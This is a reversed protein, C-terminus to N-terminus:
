KRDHSGPQIRLSADLAVRYMPYAGAYGLRRSISEGTQVLRDRANNVVTSDDIRLVPISLNIAAIAKCTADLVPVAISCLDMTQERDSVAIGSKRTINIQEIIDKKTVFTLPTHRRIDIRDILKEIQKDTLDAMLARGLASGYVLLKSGPHIDFRFFKSVENRYLILVNTDDLVGLNVTMGTEVSLEDLYPRAMKVLSSSNLYQFGLSLVRTGLFYRKNADRNVYGLSVLTHIFRQTTTKSLKALNAVETLTLPQPSEGLIELILLAREVSNIYNNDRM